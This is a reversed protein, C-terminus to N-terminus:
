GGGGLADVLDVFGYDPQGGFRYHPIQRETRLLVPEGRARDVGQKGDAADGDAEKGRAEATRVDGRLNGLSDAAGERTLM